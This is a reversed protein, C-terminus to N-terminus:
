PSGVFVTLKFSSQILFVVLQAIKLGKMIRLNKVSVFVVCIQKHEAIAHSRGIEM